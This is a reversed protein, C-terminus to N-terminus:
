SPARMGPLRSTLASLEPPMAGLVLVVSFYIATAVLVHVVAGTPLLLAACSSGAAVLVPAVVALSIGHHPEARVLALTVGVAVLVETAVDAIAGGQAGHPPILLLGLAVNVVLATSTAILLPRYRRLALLAFMSSASVFTATLVSGQIRLVPVAGRASPGAVVAIIFSAGMATALSMWVGFIVAVDFVKGFRGEAAVAGGNSGRAILPFVATLAIAPIALAVQTVRFSTAFLGTQIGSAILSMVIVTVYFYIAGVSVAIGFPVADRFRAWWRRRDFSISRVIGATVFRLLVALAVLGSAIAVAFFPLLASGAVVLIAIFVLAAFRRVLDVLALRGLRLDVQLPIGLVDAIVQTILGIGAVITGAVLVERYGALLAFVAACGIGVLTMTVRLGLLDGILRRRETEGRGVSERVGYAVIGGETVGGVLAILSSVTIFEGFRVIGLHRVLLAASGLSILVGCVYSAVRIAGGRIAV